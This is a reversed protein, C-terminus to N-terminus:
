RCSVRTPLGVSRRGLVSGPEPEARSGTVSPLLSYSYGSVAAVSRAPRTAPRRELAALVDRIAPRRLDVHRCDDFRRASAGPVPSGLRGAHHLGLVPEAVPGHARAREHQDHGVVGPAGARSGRPANQTAQGRPRVGPVLGGRLVAPRAEAEPDGGRLGACIEPHPNFLAVHLTMRRLRLSSASSAWSM